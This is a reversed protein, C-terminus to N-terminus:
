KRMMSPGCGLDVVVPDPTRALLALLARAKAGRPTCDQGAEDQVGFEGIMRIFM